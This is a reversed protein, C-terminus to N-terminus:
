GRPGGNRARAEAVADGLPAVPAPEAARRRRRFPMALLWLLAGIALWGLVFGGGAFVAGETSIPVAPVFARRTAAILETDTFRFANLARQYPSSETLAALDASLKDYRDFTRAMDERRREVIPAGTMQALAADRTLGEAQASRDFDAVVEGLADVAGGLRQVYQQSFEPFQSTAAAGLVGGALTLARIIM